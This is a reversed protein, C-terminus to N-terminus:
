RPARSRVECHCYRSPISGFQTSQLRRTLNPTSYSSAKKARCTRVREFPISAIRQRAMRAFHTDPLKRCLLELAARAGDPNEWISLQWDALKHCALSIQIPQSNPDNCIDLIVQATDEMKRYNNAYLDALIMWGEFDKDSKELENIVAWEAEAYKGFKMRAVAKSYSPQPIFLEAHHTTFHVVPLLLIAIAAPLAIPGLFYILLLSFAGSVCGILTSTVFLEAKDQSRVIIIWYLWM